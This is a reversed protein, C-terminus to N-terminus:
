RNRDLATVRDLVIQALARKSERTWGAVHPSLVVNPLAALRDMLAREAPSFTATKENPFVDLCAGGLHGRELAEVTAALDLALGRSTNVLVTGPRLRTIEAAGLYGRTEDTLPLHLSM